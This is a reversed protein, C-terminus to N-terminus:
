EPFLHSFPNLDLQKAELFRKCLDRLLSEDEPLLEYQGFTQGRLNMGMHDLIRFSTGFIGFILSVENEWHELEVLRGRDYVESIVLSDLQERLFDGYGKGRGSQWSESLYSPLHARYIREAIAKVESAFLEEELNDIHKNGNM